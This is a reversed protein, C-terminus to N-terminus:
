EEADTVSGRGYRERLKQEKRLLKAAEKFNGARKQADAALVYWRAKKLLKAAEKFDRKEGAEILLSAAYDLCGQEKAKKAAYRLVGKPDNVPDLRAYTDHAAANALDQAVGEARAVIRPTDRFDRDIVSQKDGEKRTTSM